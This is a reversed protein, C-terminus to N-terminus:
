GSWGVRKGLVPEDRECYRSARDVFEELGALHEDPLKLFRLGIECYTMGPPLDDQCTCWMVEAEAEIWPETPGLRFRLGLHQGVALPEASQVCMGTVSLNIAYNRGYSEEDTLMEVQVPVRLYRRQDERGHADSRM